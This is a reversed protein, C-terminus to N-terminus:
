REAGRKDARAGDHEVGEPGATATGAPLAPGAGAGVQRGDAVHHRAQWGAAKLCDGPRHGGSRCPAAASHPEQPDCACAGADDRGTETTTDDNAMISARDHTTLCWSVIECTKRAGGDIDRPGPADEEPGALRPAYDTLFDAMARLVRQERNSLTDAHQRTTM